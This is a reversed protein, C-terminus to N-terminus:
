AQELELTFTTGEGPKSDVSLDGGMARAHSQAIALGLGSGPKGVSDARYFRDFVRPLHEATIGKGSDRVTLRIRTGDVVAQVRVPPAGHIQANDVLNQIVHDLGDRDAKVALRAPVDITIAPADPRAAAAARVAADVVPRLEVADPAATADARAELRELELLGTVVRAIREANRRITAVFEARAAPALSDDALTEAFGAIATVPTRLEHAADALFERRVAELARLRTIDHLVAVAGHTGPLPRASVVVARDRVALEGDSDQGARARDLHTALGPPTVAGLLSEAAPNALLRKGDGDVVIVGEVMAGIVALSLDRERTLAAVQRGVEDALGVLARSLVGLEDARTSAPGIAYDGKAVREASRTMDRLPGTIARILVLGLVLAVAMGVATALLLRDRLEARTEALRATPVALRVVRGDRTAMAVLYVPTGKSTLRRTARGTTGAFAAAVEPADGIPRGVDPWRDSDGIVMGDKDVITVRAGVVGALRTALREPHGATEMWNVVGETQAVLRADLDGNLDDGLTRDLLVFTTVGVVLVIAVFSAILRAGISM